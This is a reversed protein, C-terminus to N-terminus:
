LNVKVKEKKIEGKENHARHKKYLDKTGMTERIQLQSANM